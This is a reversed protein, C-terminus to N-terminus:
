ERAKIYITIRANVGGSSADGTGRQATQVSASQVIKQQEVVSMLSSINELSEATIDVNVIQESVSYSRVSKTQKGIYNVLEAIASRSPRKREEESMGSWTYHYFEDSLSSSAEIVRMGNDVKLELQRLENRTRQLREFRDYVAFKGFLLVVALGAAVAPIAIRIQSPKKEAALFNIATKATETKGRKEAADWSLALGLSSATINLQGHENWQEFLEGMTTVDMAIRAKLLAVLPEINAGGGCITVDGLRATMDSVEYFNIGKLVDLSFDKYVNVVSPLSECNEYHTQLYTRAIHMDVNMEDAITQVIRREGSDLLHMLKYRGNKYILMRTHGQGIDLFCREKNREEETPLLGLLTEFACIGPAAYVLRLGAMAFMEETQTMYDRPVAAAFVEVASGAEEEQGQEASSIRAYDFMYENLEGQIYDRFEYPINIRLQAADMDPLVVRRTFVVEGPLGFAAQKCPIGQTKLTDRLFGAFLHRSKIESGSAINDPVETWFSKKVTSGKWWTLSLRNHECTVGLIEDTKGFM